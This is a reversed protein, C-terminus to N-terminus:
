AVEDVDNVVERDSVRDGEPVVDSEVVRDGVKLPVNEDSCVDESLGLALAVSDTLPVGLALELGLWLADKDGDAGTEDVADSEEVDPKVGDWVDETVADDHTVDVGKRTVEVAKEDTLPEGLADVANETDGDGDAEFGNEFVSVTVIVMDACKVAVIPPDTEPVIDAHEVPMHDSDTVVHEDGDIVPKGDTEDVELMVCVSDRESVKEVRGLGLVVCNALADKYEVTDTEPKGVRVPVMKSVVVADAFTEPEADTHAVADNAPPVALALKVADPHSDPVGEVDPLLVGVPDVEPDLDTDVHAVADLLAEDQADVHAVPLTECHTEADTLATAVSHAVTLEVPLTLTECVPVCQADSLRGGDDDPHQLTDTDINGEALLLGLVVVDTDADGVPESECEAVKEPQTEDDTVSDSEMVPDFETDGESEPVNEPEAVCDPACDAVPLEEMIRETVGDGHVVADGDREGLSLTLEDSLSVNETESQADVDDVGDADDHVDRVADAMADSVGVSVVDRLEDALEHIDPDGVAHADRDEVADSVTDLDVVSEPVSLAVFQADEESPRLRDTVPETEGLRLGRTEGEIPRLAEGVPEGLPLRAAAVPLGVAVRQAVGEPQEVADLEGDEHADSVRLPDADDENEPLGDGDAPKEDHPVGVIVAVSLGVSDVDPVSMGVSLAHADDVGDGDGDPPDDAVRTGGVLVGVILADTVDLEVLVELVDRVGPPVSLAHAVTVAHELAAFVEVTEDRSVADNVGYTDAEVHALALTDAVSLAFTEEVDDPAAVREVLPKCDREGLALTEGVSLAPATTSPPEDVTLTEPLRQLLTVLVCDSVSDAAGVALVNACVPLPVLQPLADHVIECDGLMVGDRPREGDTLPVAHTEAVFDAPPSPEVVPSADRDNVCVAHRVTDTDSVALVVADAAVVRDYLSGAEADDVAGDDGVVVITTEAVDLTELQADSVCAADDVPEAVTKRLADGGGVADARTLSVLLAVIETESEEDVVALADGDTQAEVLPEVLAAALALESADGVIKGDTEVHAVPVGPAAPASPPTVRVEVADRLPGLLGDPGSVAVAEEIPLGVKVTGADPEGHALPVRVCDEQADELAVRHELAHELALEAVLALRLASMETVGDIVILAVPPMKAPPTVRLGHPLALTDDVPQAERVSLPQELTELVGVVQALPVRVALEVPLLETVFVAHAVADVAIVDDDDADTVVDGDSEADAV